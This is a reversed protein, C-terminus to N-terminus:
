VAGALPGALESHPEMCARSEVQLKAYKPHTYKHQRMYDLLAQGKNFSSDSRNFHCYLAHAEMAVSMDNDATGVRVQWCNCMNCCKMLQEHAMLLHRSKTTTDKLPRGGIANPSLVHARSLEFCVKAILIALFRAPQSEQPGCSCTM